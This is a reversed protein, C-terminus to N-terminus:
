YRWIKVAYTKTINWVIIIASFETLTLRIQQGNHLQAHAQVVM